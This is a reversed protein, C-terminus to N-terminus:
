KTNEKQAFQEEIYNTRFNRPTFGTTKKFVESFYNSDNFGCKSSIQTISLTSSTLLNIAETVRTHNLYENFGFGTTQKFLVSFYEKSFSYKDALDKLTIRECYNKKIDSAAEQIIADTKSLPLPRKTSAPLRALTCLIKILNAHNYHKTYEDHKQSNEHLSQFCSLITEKADEPLHYFHTSFCPLFVEPIEEKRPALLYREHYEDPTADPADWVKHTLMEPILIMDGPSIDFIENGIFYRRKGSILYYIEYSKHFHPKPMNLSTDCNYSFFSPEYAYFANSM